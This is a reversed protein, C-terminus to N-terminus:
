KLLEVESQPKHDWYCGRWSWPRGAAAKKPVVVVCRRKGKVEGRIGNKENAAAKMPQITLKEDDLLFDYRDFGHWATKQGSFTRPVDARGLPQRVSATSPFGALAAVLCFALRARM